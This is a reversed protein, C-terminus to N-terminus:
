RVESERFEYDLVHENGEAECYTMYEGPHGRGSKQYICFDGCQSLKSNTEKYEKEMAECYSVYSNWQDISMSSKYSEMEEDSQKQAEEDPKYFKCNCM